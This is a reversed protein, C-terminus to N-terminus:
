VNGPLDNTKPPTQPTYFGSFLGMFCFRLCCLASNL